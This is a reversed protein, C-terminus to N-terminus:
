VINQLKSQSKHIFFIFNGGTGGSSGANIVEPDACGIILTFSQCLESIQKSNLRLRFLYKSCTTSLIM